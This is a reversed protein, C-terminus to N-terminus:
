FGIAIIAVRINIVVVPCFLYQIGASSEFQPNLPNQQIYLLLYQQDLDFKFFRSCYFRNAILELMGLSSFSYTFKNYLFLPLQSFDIAFDRFQKLIIIEDM